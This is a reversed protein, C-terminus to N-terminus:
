NIYYLFTCIPKRIYIERFLCLSRFLTNAATMNRERTANHRPTTIIVIIVVFM